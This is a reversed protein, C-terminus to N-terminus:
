ICLGGSMQMRNSSHQEALSTAMSLVCSAQPSSASQLNSLILQIHLSILSLLAYLGGLLFVFVVSVKDKRSLNLGLVMRVPLALIVTDIVVEVVGTVMWFLNLNFCHEDSLSIWRLNMPRCHLLTAITAAIWFALVVVGVLLSQLRFSEDISFIRRYMLLISVKIATVITFYLATVIFTLKLYTMHPTTDFTDVSNNNM